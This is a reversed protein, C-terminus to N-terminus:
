TVIRVSEYPVGFRRHASATINGSFFLLVSRFLVTKLNRRFTALSTRDRIDLPWLNWVTPAVVRFSRSGIM